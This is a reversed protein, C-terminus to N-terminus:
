KPIILSFKIQHAESTCTIHGGMKRALEFASYLGLGAHNDSKTTFGPQSLKEKEEPVITGPNNVEFIMFPGKERVTISIWRDETDQCEVAEIANDLLNGLIRVIDLVNSKIGSLSAEIETELKIREADARTIKANLLAAIFPNDVKMVQNYFSVEANLGALYEGLEEKQNNHHLANIVQIHNIFDHRQIRVSNVLDSVSDTILHSASTMIRRERSRVTTFVIFFNLGVIVMWAIFLTFRKWFGGAYYISEDLCLFILGVQLIIATFLKLDKTDTKIRALIFSWRKGVRRLLYALPVMSSNLPPMIMVATVWFSESIFQTSGTIHEMLLMGVIDPVMTFFLLSIVINKFCEWWSYKFIAIYTLFSMLINIPIRISEFENYTLQALIANLLGYIFVKRWVAKPEYGLFIMAAFMGCFVDFFAVITRCIILTM